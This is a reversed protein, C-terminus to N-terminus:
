RRSTFAVSTRPAGAARKSELPRRRIRGGKGAEERCACGGARAGRRSVAERRGRQAGHFAPKSARRPLARRKPWRPISARRPQLSQVFRDPPPPRAIVLPAALCGVPADGSWPFEALGCLPASWHPQSLHRKRPLVDLLHHTGKGVRPLDVGTVHRGTCVAFTFLSLNGRSWITWDHGVM